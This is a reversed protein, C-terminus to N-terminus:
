NQLEVSNIPQAPIFGSARIPHVAFHLAYVYALKQLQKPCFKAGNIQEEDIIMKPVTTKFRM